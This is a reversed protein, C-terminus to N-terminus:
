LTFFNFYWSILQSGWFLAVFTGTALFPGFPVEAKLTKKGSIILGVGIIAGLLFALFLAALINPFGLVLGMLFALKIDGVGMWRGGSMLVIALFFGGALVAAVFYPIFSSLHFILNYFLAIFIIPFIVKDPIIYHKLDYVFIIILFCAVILLYILEIVDVAVMGVFFFLVGTALEVLPYQPAISQRCYRCKGLLAVFSLIPILDQWSLSHKCNPCYSRGWFFSIGAELGGLNKRSFSPLALRYIVCNLFSGIALGFLFIMLYFFTNIGM